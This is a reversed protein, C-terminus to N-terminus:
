HKLAPHSLMRPLREFPFPFSEVALLGEETLRTSPKEKKKESAKSSKRARTVMRLSQECDLSPHSSNQHIPQSSFHPAFYM